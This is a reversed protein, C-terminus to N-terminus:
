QLHASFQVSTPNVDVGCVGTACCMAPEFVELNSM